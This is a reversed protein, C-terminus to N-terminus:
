NPNIGPFARYAFRLFTLFFLPLNSLDQRQKEDNFAVFLDEV